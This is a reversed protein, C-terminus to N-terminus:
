RLEGRRGYPCSSVCFCFGRVALFSSSDVFFCAIECLIWVRSRARLVDRKESSIMLM